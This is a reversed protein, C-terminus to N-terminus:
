GVRQQKVHQVHGAASLNVGSSGDSYVAADLFTAHDRILEWARGNQGTQDAEMGQEKFHTVIRALRAPEPYPLPRLLTADVVSFIATNAGICIALTLVIITTSAPSRRAIRLAHRLDMWLSM